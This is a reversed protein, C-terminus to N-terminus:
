RFVTKTCKPLHTHPDVSPSYAPSLYYSALHAIEGYLTHCPQLHSGTWGEHIIPTSPDEKRASPLQSLSPIVRSVSSIQMPLLPSPLASHESFFRIPPPTFVARHDGHCWSKCKKKGRSSMRSLPAASHFRFGRRRHHSGHARERHEMEKVVSCWVVRMKEMVPIRITECPSGKGEKQATPSLSSTFFSSLGLLRPDVTRSHLTIWQIFCEHLRVDMESPARHRKVGEGEEAREWCNCSEQEAERTNRIEDNELKIFPSSPAANWKTHHCRSDNQKKRGVDKERGKASAAASCHTCPLSSLPLSSSKRENEREQNEKTDDRIFPFFPPAFPCAVHPAVDLPSYYLPHLPFPFPLVNSLSLFHPPCCSHFSALAPAATAGSSRVGRCFITTDRTEEEVCARSCALLDKTRRGQDVEESKGGDKERRWRWTAPVMRDEPSTSGDGRCRRRRSKCRTDTGKQSGQEEKTPEGMGCLARQTKGEDKRGERINAHSHSVICHVSQKAEERLAGCAPLRGTHFRTCNPSATQVLRYVSLTERLMGQVVVVYFSIEVPLTPPSLSPSGARRTTLPATQQEEVCLVIPHELLRLLLGLLHSGETVAVEAWRVVATQVVNHLARRWKWWSVSAFPRDNPDDPLPLLTDTTPNRKLKEKIQKKKTQNCEHDEAHDHSHCRREVKKVSLFTAFRLWWRLVTSTFFTWQQACFFLSSIFSSTHSLAAPVKVMDETTRQTATRTVNRPSPDTRHEKTDRRLTAVDGKETAISGKKKWCGADDNRKFVTHSGTEEGQSESTGKGETVEENKKVAVGDRTSILLHEEILTCLFYNTQVCDQLITCSASFTSTSDMFFRSPFPTQSSQGRGEREGDVATGRKMESDKPLLKKEDYLPVGYADTSEVRISMCCTRKTEKQEEEKMVPTNEAPKWGTEPTTACRCVHALWLCRRMLEEPVCSSSSASSIRSSCSVPFLPALITTKESRRRPYRNENDLIMETFLRRWLCDWEVSSSSLTKVPSPSCLSAARTHHTCLPLHSYFLFRSRHPSLSPLSASSCARRHATLFPLSFSFPVCAHDNGVVCQSLPNYLEKLRRATLFLGTVLSWGEYWTDGVDRDSSAATERNCHATPFGICKKGVDTKESAAAMKGLLWATNMRMYYMWSKWVQLLFFSPRPSSSTGKGTSGVKARRKGSSKHRCLQAVKQWRHPTNKADGKGARGEEQIYLLLLESTTRLSWYSSFRAPHPEKIEKKRRNRRSWCGSYSLSISFPNRYSEDLFSSSCSLSSFFSADRYTLFGELQKLVNLSYYCHKYYSSEKRTEKGEHPVNEIRNTM